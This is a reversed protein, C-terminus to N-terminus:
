KLKGLIKYGRSGGDLGKATIYFGLDLMHDAAAPIFSDFVLRKVKFTGAFDVMGKIAIYMYADVLAKNDSILDTAEVNTIQIAGMQQSFYCRFIHESETGINYSIHSPMACWNNEWGAKTTLLIHGREDMERVVYPSLSKYM